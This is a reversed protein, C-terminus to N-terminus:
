FDAGVAYLRGDARLEVRRQMLREDPVNTCAGDTQSFTWYHLPCIFINEYVRVEGGAHPCLASLLRYGNDEGTLVLWYPAGDLEVSAPFDTYDEPKGLDADLNGRENM